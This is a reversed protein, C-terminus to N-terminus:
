PTKQDAERCLNIAHDIHIAIVDLQLEDALSLANELLRALGGVSRPLNEDQVPM